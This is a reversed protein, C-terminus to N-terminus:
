KCYVGWFAPVTVLTAGLGRFCGAWGEKRIIERLLLPINAVHGRQSVVATAAANGRSSAAVKVVPVVDGWVQLRTRILDLPACLVSAMAASGAGAVLSSWMYVPDRHLHLDNPKDQQQEKQKPQEQTTKSTTTTTGVSSTGM